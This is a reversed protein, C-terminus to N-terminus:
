VGSTDRRLEGSDLLGEVHEVWVDEPVRLMRAAASLADVEEPALVGDAATASVLQEMISLKEGLTLLDPLEVLAQHCAEELEATPSGRDDLFGLARLSAQPFHQELFGQERLAFDADVELVQRVMHYAFAVQLRRVDAM